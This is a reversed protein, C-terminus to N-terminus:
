QYLYCLSIYGVNIRFLLGFIQSWFHNTTVMSYTKEAQTPNPQTLLVSHIQVMGMKLYTNRVTACHIACLLTAGLVGAVGMM